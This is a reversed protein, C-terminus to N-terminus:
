GRKVFYLPQIDPVGPDIVFQDDNAALAVKRGVPQVREEIARRIRDVDDRDRVHMGELNTFLINREVDYSVRQAIGLGLLTDDLHMTEERFIRSDMPVPNKVIPIFDMHALIDRDIDIGPAM